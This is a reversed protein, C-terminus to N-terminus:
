FPGYHGRFGLGWFGQVRDDKAHLHRKSNAITIFIIVIIIITTFTNTIM